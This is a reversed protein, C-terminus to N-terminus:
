HRRWCSGELDHSTQFTGGAHRTEDTGTETGVMATAMVRHNRSRHDIGACGWSKGWPAGGKVVPCGVPVHRCVTTCGGGGVRVLRMGRRQAM